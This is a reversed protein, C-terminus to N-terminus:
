FSLIITIFLFNTITNQRIKYYFLQRMKCYYRNCKTIVYWLSSFILSYVSSVKLFLNGQTRTGLVVSMNHEIQRLGEEKSSLQGGRQVCAESHRQIKVQFKPGTPLHKKSVHQGEWTQFRFYLKETTSQPHWKNEFHHLLSLSLSNNAGLM